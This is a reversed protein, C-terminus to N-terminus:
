STKPLILIFVCGGEPKNYVNISGGHQQMIQQSYSLGLGFGKVNHRDGTPVRFFKDFVKDLYEKPIGPGNDAITIKIDGATKSLSINIEPQKDAYKLSNDLLNILVGQMHLKD